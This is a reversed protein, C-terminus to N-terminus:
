FTLFLPGLTFNWFGPAGTLPRSCQRTSVQVIDQVGPMQGPWWLGAPACGQGGQTVHAGQWTVAKKSFLDCEPETWERGPKCLIGQQCRRQVILCIGVKPSMYFNSGPARERKSKGVGKLKRMRGSNHATSWSVSLTLSSFTYHVWHVEAWCLASTTLVPSTTACLVMVWTLSSECPRQATGSSDLLFLFSVCTKPSSLGLSSSNCRWRGSRHCTWM